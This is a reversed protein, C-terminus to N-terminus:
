TTSDNVASAGNTVHARVWRSIELPGLCVAPAVTPAFAVGIPM